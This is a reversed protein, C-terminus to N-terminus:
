ISDGTTASGVRAMNQQENVDDNWHLDLIVVVGM